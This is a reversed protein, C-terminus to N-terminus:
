GSNPAEAPPMRRGMARAFAVNGAALVPADEPARHAVTEGAVVREWKRNDEL